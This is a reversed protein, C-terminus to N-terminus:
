PRLDVRGLAVATDPGVRNTTLGPGASRTAVTPCVLPIRGPRRPTPSGDAPVLRPRPRALLPAPDSYVAEGGPVERRLSLTVPRGVSAGVVQGAALRTGVDMDPRPLLGGVSVVSGRRWPAALEIVVYGTGAVQGSFRVTGPAPSVVGVGARPRFEVTRHGPCYDCAPPEYGRTVPSAVPPLLCAWVLLRALLRALPVIIM